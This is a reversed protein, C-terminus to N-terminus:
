IDAAAGEVQLMSALKRMFFDIQGRVDIYEGGALAYLTLGDLFSLYNVAIKYADGAVGPKLRGQAVGNLVIDAIRDIAKRHLGHIFHRQRYFLGGEMITQMVIEFYFRLSAITPYDGFALYAYAIRTLRALPDKTQAVIQAIQEFWQESAEQVAARFLAEKNQYYEYITSKGIGAGAAINELSTGQFGKQNFAALAARAIERKKESRKLGNESM